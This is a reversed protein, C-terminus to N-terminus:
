TGVRVIGDSEKGRSTYDKRQTRKRTKGLSIRASKEFNGLSKGERSSCVAKLKVYHSHISLKAVIGRLVPDYSFLPMQRLSPRLLVVNSAKWGLNLSFIPRELLQSADM